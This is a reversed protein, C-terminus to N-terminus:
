FRTVKEFKTGLRSNEPSHLVPKSGLQIFSRQESRKSWVVQLVPLSQVLWKASADLIAFLLTTATVLAIGIRRNQATDSHLSSV